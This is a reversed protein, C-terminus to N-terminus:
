GTAKSSARAGSKWIGRVKAKSSARVQSLFTELSAALAEPAYQRARSLAGRRLRKLLTRDGAISRLSAALEERDGAAFVLGSEEDVIEPLAGSRAVILPVGFSLAEICVYGFPEAWISPVVLVDILPYFSNPDVWGLYRTKSAPFRSLVQRVFEPEGDGAILYEFPADNGLLAAAEGLTGIGKNPTLMGIYGVRIADTEAARPRPVSGPGNVAGPVIRMAARGFLGQERHLSLTHSAEAVVGDVLQSCLKKGISAVRCQLCPRECNKNKSFMTGKWCMLFYSQIAHVSSLGLMWAAVWTAVNVNEVSITLVVDPRFEVMERRMRLLARPNFNELAHWLLKAAASRDKKWYNWYLNLSKLTRVQVGDRVEFSDDDAVTVVRVTHGRSCLAKAITESGKPGGGKGHPPYAAAVCLIRM